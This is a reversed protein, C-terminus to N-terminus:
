ELDPENALDTMSTDKGDEEDSVFENSLFAKKSPTEEAVEEEEKVKPKRKKLKRKKKQEGEQEEVYNEEASDEEKPAKRSKKKEELLREEIKIKEHLEKAKIAAEKRIREIEENEKRKLEEEEQMRQIKENEEDRRKEELLENKKEAEAKEKLFLELQDKLSTIFTSCYKARHKAVNIDFFRQGEPANEVLSKFDMAAETLSEIAKNLEAETRIHPDRKSVILGLEQKNLAINFKLALDSPQILSAQELLKISEEIHGINLAEKGFYYYAKALYVLIAADKKEKILKGCHEYMNIASNYLQMEMHVHGLNIWIDDFSGEAQRVQLFVDRAEKFHGKAAM